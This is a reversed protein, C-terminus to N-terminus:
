ATGGIVGCYAVALLCGVAMARILWPSFFAARTQEYTYRMGQTNRGM